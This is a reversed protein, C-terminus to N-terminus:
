NKRILTFSEGLICDFLLAGRRGEKIEALENRQGFCALIWFL